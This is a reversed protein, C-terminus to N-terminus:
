EVVFKENAITGDASLIRVFYIGAGLNFNIRHQADAVNIAKKSLVERGLNDLIRVEKINSGNVIIYNKAPNPFISLQYNVISLQVSVVKSYHIRGDKDVVQLRYYLSNNKANMDLFSYSVNGKANVRGITVFSRGDVSRQVNYYATGQENAATWNNEVHGSGVVEHAEYSTITVPLTIDKIATTATNTVVPSNYDFYVSATNDINSGAQLTAQPQLRFHVFGNSGLQDMSSDALNINLFEFYIINRDIIINPNHSSGMMQLIGQTLLPSLTDAIVVSKATANGVNQFHIHYDVMQGDVVQKTSLQTTADKSNPDYSSHAIQTNENVASAKASAISAVTNISDGLKVSTKVTFIFRPYKYGNKCFRGGFYNPALTDIWSITNGVQIANPVSASDFLLKSTDYSFSINTPTTTTGLNRYEVSYAVTRGPITTQWPEINVDLSDILTTPQLAIDSLTLLSNNASFSFNTNNPVAKFFPPATVSLSFSGTDSTSIIYQGADNTYVIAGNSLKVQVFPIYQENSDKIGNSNDDGFVKGMVTPYAKCQNANNTPNCIALGTSAFNVNSTYNPLCSVGSGSNIFATLSNPLKPLCTLNSDSSCNLIGLQTLSDFSPLSSLPNNLCNLVLLSSPLSPLSALMNNGVYLSILSNPLTPLATIHSYLITLYRLSNPLSPIVTIQTNELDFYKLQNPLIPLSKMSDQGCTLWLLGDPLTPFSSLPNNLCMLYKLTIPLTPLSTLNNSYCDLSDLGIPLTPLSAIQNQNCYIYTLGSPLSPLSTLSDQGCLLTHLQNPLIPLTHLNNYSCNLYQLSNPLTPLFTLSDRACSLTILNQFNKIDLTRLNNDSCELSQLSNPLTPLFTLSDRECSLTILNQFYEIGTLDKILLRDCSINTTNVVGSCTTDMWYKNSSDKYLCSPIKSILYKGFNSDPINVFPNNGLTCSNPNNIGNCIPISIVSGNVWSSNSYVNLGKILNPLCHINASDLYLSQLSNPLKPLCFLNPNGSCDLSTLNSMSDLSPLETLANHQCSLANLYPPWPLYTFQNYDIALYLFTGIKSLSAPLTDTFQNSTLRLYELAKLNGLSSPVKGSLHNNDFDLETLNILNGFSRPISGTLKNWSFKLTVLNTLNGISAPITDNLYYNFSLDLNTLNTLNGISSPIRGSFSNTGLELSSLQTLNGILSSITDGISNGPISLSTLNSLSYISPPLTGVLGCNGLSISTLQQMGGFMDPIWGTFYNQYLTLSKLKVLNALSIPIANQLNNEQLSLEELNILNGFSSPITDSLKNNNLRLVTLNTLNGISSDLSTLANWGLDLYTLASLNGISPFIKGKLGSNPLKISTIRDGVVTIGSWTDIPTNYINWQIGGGASWYLDVLALSDDQRTQAKTIMVM